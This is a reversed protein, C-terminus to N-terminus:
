HPAPRTHSSPGAPRDREVDMATFIAGVAEACSILTESDHRAEAEGACIQLEDVIGTAIHATCTLRAKGIGADKENSEFRTRPSGIAHLHARLREM